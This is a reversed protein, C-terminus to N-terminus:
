VFRPGWVAICVFDDCLGLSNKWPYIVFFRYAVIARLCFLIHSFCELCLFVPAYKHLIFYAPIYLKFSCVFSYFIISLFFPKFCFVLLKIM